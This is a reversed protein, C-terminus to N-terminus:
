SSLMPHERLATLNMEYQYEWDQTGDPWDVKKKITHKFGHKIMARRSPENGERHAIFLKDWVLHGIAFDTRAEYLLKSFGKGRYEPLIYDMAMVGTKGTEDGQWTFAAAIGVLTKGDFLGFVQKGKGDVTEQWFTDPKQKIEEPKAFFSGTHETIAKIRIDKLAQWDDFSLPRVTVM